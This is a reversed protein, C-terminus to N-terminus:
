DFESPRDDQLPSDWRMGRAASTPQMGNADSAARLRDQDAGGRLMGAPKAKRFFLQFEEANGNGYLTRLEKLSRTPTRM